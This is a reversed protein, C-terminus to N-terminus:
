ANLAIHARVAEKLERNVTSGRAKVVKMFERDVGGTLRCSRIKELMYPKIEISDM